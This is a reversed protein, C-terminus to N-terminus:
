ASVGDKRYDMDASTLTDTTGSRRVGVRFQYIGMVVFSVQNPDTGNDITFEMLPTDDWNTGDLSGYVAVIADDTPSTPFDVEIEVHALERPNLQPEEDFFQETTINTLQTASTESGWAM